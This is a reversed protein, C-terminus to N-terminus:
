RRRLDAADRGVLLDAAVALFDTETVLGVLQGDEGIVPLAGIKHEIMRHAAVHAPTNEDVSHVERTMVDGLRIRRLSRKGLHRLLDRNSLIGVLNGHEDVIPLHRIGALNMDLEALDITDGETRTVLATTMMDSVTMADKMADEQAGARAIPTRM